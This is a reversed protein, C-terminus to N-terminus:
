INLISYAHGQVIGMDSVARDGMAHAPSGCGM